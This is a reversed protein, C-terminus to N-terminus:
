TWMKRWRVTKQRVFGVDTSSMFPFTCTNHDAFHYFWEVADQNPCERKNIANQMTKRCQKVIQNLYIV